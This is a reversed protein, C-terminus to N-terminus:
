SILQLKVSFSLQSLEYTPIKPSCTKPKQTNKNHIKKRECHQQNKVVRGKSKLFHALDDRSGDTCIELKSPCGFSEQVDPSVPTWSKRYISWPRNKAGVPVFQRSLFSPTREGNSTRCCDPVYVARKMGLHLLLPTMRPWPAATVAIDLKRGEFHGTESRPISPGLVLWLDSIRRCRCPPPSRGNSRCFKTWLKSTANAQWTWGYKSLIELRM